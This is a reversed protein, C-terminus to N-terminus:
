KKLTEIKHIMKSLAGVPSNNKSMTLINFRIYKEFFGNKERWWRNIIEHQDNNQENSIVDIMPTLLKIFLSPIDYANPISETKEILLDILKTINQIYSKNSQDCVFTGHDIYKALALPNKECWQIMVDIQEKTDNKLVQDMFAKLWTMSLKTGDHENNILKAENQNVIDILKTINQIYSTNSEDPSITKNAIYNALVRPHKECWNIMVDIQQTNGYYLVQDMIKKFCQMSLKTSDHENNTLKAENQHVIDIFTTMNQIYSINSEHPWITKNAIYNALILPNQQCWNIMEDKKNYKLVQDMINTFCKMSLKTVNYEKKNQLKTANQKLIDILKIITKIYSPNSEYPWITKNDIYNALVLPNKKCWNIMENIDNEIGNNLLQNMIKTFCKMLLTPANYIHPISKTHQNLIEILKIITTIYSPNSEDLSITKNDIYDTLILPNKECWQIMINIQETTGYYLIQDMITTFCTMSLKTVNYETNILNAENNHLIEILKIITTIYSTNSEYPWITKNAIYHALILPNKECWQIMINIQETTGYYLVEDMFAKFCTMSLKAVDYKTKMLNAENQKLIDILKIITKIYSPNSEYPLITKNPIYHALILPNQESWHIMINTQDEIDNKLVQDMIKTFCKMSLAAVDYKTNMLNAENNILNAENQKLIDILKIITTIYSTNSEYPWITKNAIYHALILPNKECWQIMINIQEEIDNKLVQDMFAKFWTMSLKTVNYETNILNAENQKLIDILKIITKIYSSNIENCLINKDPIYNALFAVHNNCFNFFNNETNTYTCHEFFYQAIEKFLMHITHTLTPTCTKNNNIINILTKIDQIYINLRNIHMLQTFYKIDYNKQLHLLMLRSYQEPYNTITKNKNDQNNRFIFPELLQQCLANINYQNKLSETNKNLVDILDIVVNIKDHYYKCIMSDDDYHLHAALVDPHKNCNDIIINEINKSKNIWEFFTNLMTRVLKKSVKTVINQGINLTSDNEIIKILEDIIPITDMNIYIIGNDLVYTALISAHQKCITIIKSNIDPNKNYKNSKIMIELLKGALHRIKYQKEKFIDNKSNDSLIKILPNIVFIINDYGTISFNELGHLYEALLAPHGYSIAIITNYNENDNEALLKMRAEFLRISLPGTDYNKNIAKDLSHVIYKILYMNHANQIVQPNHLIYQKLIEPYADLITTIQKDRHENQLEKLYTTIIPALLKESLHTVDYQKEKFIENTRNAYLIEILRHILFISTDSVQITFNNLGHLCEALLAPNQKCLTIIDVDLENNKICFLADMIIAFYTEPAHYAEPIFKKIVDVIDTKKQTDDINANKISEYLYLANRKNLIIKNTRTTNHNAITDIIEKVLGPLLYTKNTNISNLITTISHFGISLETWESYTDINNHSRKQFRDIINSNIIDNKSEYILSFLKNLLFIIQIKVDESIISDANQEIICYIKAKYLLIEEKCSLLLDLNFQERINDKTFILLAHKLATTKADDENNITNIPEFKDLMNTKDIHITNSTDHCFSKFFLIKDYVPYRIDKEITYLEIILEILFRRSPDLKKWLAGDSDKIKRCFQIITDNYLNNKTICLDLLQELNCKSIIEITENKKQLLDHYNNHKINGDLYEFSALLFNRYNKDSEHTQYIEIIHQKNREAPWCSTKKKSTYESYLFCEQFLNLLNKYVTELANKEFLNLLNENVKEPENKQLELLDKYVTQLRAQKKILARIVKDIPPNDSKILPEIILNIIAIYATKKDVHQNVMYKETMCLIANVIFDSNEQFLYDALNNKKYNQQDFYELDTVLQCIIKAILKTSAKDSHLADIIENICIYSKEDFIINKLPKKLISYNKNQPCYLTGLNHPNAKFLDSLLQFLDEIRLMNTFEKNIYITYFLHDANQLDIPENNLLTIFNTIIKFLTKNEIYKEHFAAFKSVLSIHNKLFEIDNKIVPLFGTWYNKKNKNLLNEQIGQIIQCETTADAVENHNCRLQYYKTVYKIAPLATNNTNNNRYNILQTLEDELKTVIEEPNEKNFLTKSLSIYFDEDEIITDLLSDEINNTPNSKSEEMSFVISM